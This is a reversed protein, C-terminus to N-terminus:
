GVMRQYGLGCGFLIPFTVESLGVGSFEIEFNNILTKLKTKLIKNLIM